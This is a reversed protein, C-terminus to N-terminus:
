SVWEGTSLQLAIDTRRKLKLSSYFSDYLIVNAANTFSKKRIRNMFLKHNLLDSVGVAYALDIIASKRPLNLQIFFHHDSLASYINDIDENLWYEALENSIEISDLRTGYGVKLIGDKGKNPKLNIHEHRKIQQVARNIM